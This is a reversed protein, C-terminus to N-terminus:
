LRKTIERALTGIYKPAFITLHKGPVDVIELSKVLDSWGYDGPLHFKDDTAQSKFLTLHLDLSTPQYNETAESHAERVQLMRLDSHPETKGATQASRVENRVRYHTAFGERIRSCLKLLKQFEDHGHHSNWFVQVRELATFRKVPAAPNVTDFLGAFAIEEGEEMLQRAIDYVLLGGFSYGALHYPGRAQYQRLAAIYSAAMEEVPAAAVLDSASLSPSEIALLPRGPPLHQALDRYFFVGGDGGHICFLPPL